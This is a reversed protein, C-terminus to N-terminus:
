KEPSAGVLSADEVDDVSELKDKYIMISNIYLIITQAMEGFSIEGMSKGQKDILPIKINAEEVSGPVNIVLVGDDSSMISGDTLNTVKEMNCTLSPLGQRPNELIVRYARSFPTGSGDTQKFNRM